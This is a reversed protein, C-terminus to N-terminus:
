SGLAAVAVGATLVGAGVLRRPTRPEALLWWGLVSAALIGTSRTAAVVQVDVRQLALLVLGYSVPVLVAVPLAQGWSSRAVGAVRSLDPAVALTLVALQAVSGVTLYALVDVHLRSVAYGDWLTYGAVAVATASGALVGSVDARRSGARDGVLLAIGACILAIGTWLAPTTRAHLLPVSALAVLVPAGARTVPYVVGLAAGAYSRQLLVAYLTHLGASVVGAWGHHTAWGGGAGARVLLLAVLAPTLVASYLWVFATGSTGAQKVLLNWVAHVVSGVVVLSLGLLV